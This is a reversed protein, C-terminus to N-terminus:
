HRDYTRNTVSHGPAWGARAGNGGARLKRGIVATASPMARVVEALYVLAAAVRALAPQARRPPLQALENKIAIASHAHLAVRRCGLNVVNRRANDSLTEAPRALAGVIRRIQLRETM